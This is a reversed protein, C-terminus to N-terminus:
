PSSIPIPCRPTTSEYLEKLRFLPRDAIPSVRKRNKFEVEAQPNMQEYEAAIRECESRSNLNPRLRLVADVRHSLVPVENNRCISLAEFHFNGAGVARIIRYLADDSSNICDIHKQHRLHMNRTGGVYMDGTAYCVICYIGGSIQDKGTLHFQM